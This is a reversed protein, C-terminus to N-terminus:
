NRRKEIYSFSYVTQYLQEDDLWYRDQKTWQRNYVCLAAEIALEAKDDPKPSYVEISIDHRYIGPPMGDPGDTEVYDLWVAYTGAPPKPFRNRRAPIGALEMIEKVM